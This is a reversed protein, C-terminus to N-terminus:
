SPRRLFRVFGTAKHFLGVMEPVHLITAMGFYVAGYMGLSVIALLIPHSQDMMLKGGWGVAAAAGASVWLKLVFRVPLGTSGIRGNM